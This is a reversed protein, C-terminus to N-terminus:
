DIGSIESRYYQRWYETLRRYQLTRPKSTDVCNRLQLPPSIRLLIVPKIAPLQYWKEGRQLARPKPVLLLPLVPCQSIVAINAAGRKFELQTDYSNRTGEPFILVNEGAALKQTAQEIFDESSNSIYGALSVVLRTFPNITLQHKVVCCLNDVYALVFLADILMSHNAIVLHGKVQNNDTPLERELQYTFLGFFQMFDVYFRCLFKISKRVKIQRARPSIPLAALCFMYFVPIFVGVAFVVYSVGAACIRWFHNLSRNLFCLPQSLQQTGIRLCM